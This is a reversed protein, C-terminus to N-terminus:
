AAKDQFGKQIQTQCCRRVEVPKNNLNQRNYRARFTQLVYSQPNLALKLISRQMSNMKLDRVIVGAPIPRIHRNPQSDADALQELRIVTLAIMSISVETEISQQSRM